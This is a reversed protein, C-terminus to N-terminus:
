LLRKVAIQQSYAELDISKDAQLAPAFYKKLFINKFIELSSRSHNIKYTAFFFMRKAESSGNILKGNVSKKRSSSSTEAIYVAFETIFILTNHPRGHLFEYM